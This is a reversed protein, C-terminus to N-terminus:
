VGHSPGFSTRNRDGVTMEDIDHAVERERRRRVGRAARHTLEESQEAIDVVRREDHHRAVQEVGVRRRIERLEDVGGPRGQRLNAFTELREASARAM